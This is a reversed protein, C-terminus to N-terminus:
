GYPAHRHNQALRRWCPGDFSSNRTRFGELLCVQHEARTELNSNWNPLLRGLLSPATALFVSWLVSAFFRTTNRFLHRFKSGSSRPCPWIKTHRTHITTTPFWLRLHSMCSPPYLCFIFRNFQYCQVGHSGSRTNGDALRPYSPPLLALSNIRNESFRADGVKCALRNLVRLLSGVVFDDVSHLSSDAKLSKM